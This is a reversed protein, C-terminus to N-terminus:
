AAIERLRAHPDDAAAAERAGLALGYAAAVGIAPAGRVQLRRIAEGVEEITACTLVSVEGPLRMQDIMRLVGAGDDWWLTRPLGDATFPQVTEDALSASPQAVAPM